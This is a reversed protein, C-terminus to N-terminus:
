GVTELVRRLEEANKECYAELVDGDGDEGAARLLEQVNQRMRLLKDDAM